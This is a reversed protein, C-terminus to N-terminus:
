TGCYNTDISRTIRFSELDLFSINNTLKWLVVASKHNHNYICVADTEICLKVNATCPSCLLTPRSDFGRHKSNQLMLIKKEYVKIILM